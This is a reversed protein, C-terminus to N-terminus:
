KKVYKQLEEFVALNHADWEVGKGSEAEQDAYIVTVMRANDKFFDWNEDNLGDRCFKWYTQYTEIDKEPIVDTLTSSGWYKVLESEKWPEMRMVQEEGIGIQRDFPYVEPITTGYAQEMKEKVPKMDTDQPYEAWIRCLRHGEEEGEGKAPMHEFSSFDVFSFFVRKTKQGFVEIDPIGFSVTLSSEEYLLVDEKATQFAEMVEQPTMGWTLGPFELNKASEKKVTKGCASLLIMCLLLAALFSKKM